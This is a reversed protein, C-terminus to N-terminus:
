GLESLALVTEPILTEPGLPVVLVRPLREALIRLNSRVSPDPTGFRNLALMAVRLGRREACEITTLVESLVGLRDPAVVVLPLDLTAAVDAITAHRTLPVLLGGAGEVIVLRGRAHERTAHVIEELDPAPEGELHAAYPSLAARARYWRADNAVEPRGCAEALALADTPGADEVGTEIPKLAVVDRGAARLARALACSVSTKGVGTGTGTVFLGRM